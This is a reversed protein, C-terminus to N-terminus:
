ISDNLDLNKHLLVSIVRFRQGLHPEYLVFFVTFSTSSLSVKAMITVTYKRIGLTRLIIQNDVQPIIMNM